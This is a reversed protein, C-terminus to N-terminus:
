RPGGACRTGLEAFAACFAAFILLLGTLRALFAPSADGRPTSM